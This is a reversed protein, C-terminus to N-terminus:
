NVIRSKVSQLTVMRQNGREGQWTVIVNIRMFTDNPPAVDPAVNWILTYAGINSFYDAPALAAADLPDDTNNLGALGDLTNDNLWNNPDTYPTGQLIEVQDAALTAAETLERATGNGSIASIQMTATALLGTALIAIAVVAEILTFGEQNKIFGKM